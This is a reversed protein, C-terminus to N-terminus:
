FYQLFYDGYLLTGDQEMGFLLSELVDKDIPIRVGDPVDKLLKEIASRQESKIKKISQNNLRM